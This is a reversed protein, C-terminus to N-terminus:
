EIGGTIRVEVNPSQDQHDNRNDSEVKKTDKGGHGKSHLKIGISTAAGAIGIGTVVYILLPDNQDNTKDPCGDTDEFGNITEPVTPCKDSNDLIGDHDSDKIPLQDPCGDTDEFGNITEPQTPCSDIADIISDGDSDTVPVEDPCGDTDQYNNVTEPVTPCKDSNDSIGDHDSDTVPIEDPCGDTDQYNNVTEPQTPCKDSNDYIGDGDTDVNVPEFNVPSEAIIEIKTSNLNEPLTWDYYSAFVVDTQNVNLQNLFIPKSTANILIIPGEFIGSDESSEFLQPITIKDPSSKSWLQISVWDKVTPHTNMDFDYVIIKTQIESLKEERYATNNWAITGVDWQTKNIIELPCAIGSSDTCEHPTNIPISDTGNNQAFTVNVSLVSSLVLVFLLIIKEGSFLKM